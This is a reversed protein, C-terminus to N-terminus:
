KWELYTLLPPWFKGTPCIQGTWVQTVGRHALIGWDGHGGIQTLNTKMKKCILNGKRLLDKEDWWPKVFIPKNSVSNQQWSVMVPFIALCPACMKTKKLYPLIGEINWRPCQCYIYLINIWFVPKPEEGFLQM